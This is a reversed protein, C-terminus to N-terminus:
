FEGDYTTSQTPIHCKGPQPGTFSGCTGNQLPSNNENLKETATQQGTASTASTATESPTDSVYRNLADAFDAVWYCSGFRDRRPIVGYPKLLTTIRRSTIPKGSWWEAWPADELACLAECLEQSGIRSSKQAEIVESIDRLLLVGPSQPEDDNQKALGVLASRVSEPWGKGALDAIACIARANDQARDNLANPVAPDLGRLRMLNDDAWRQARRRLPVFEALKDARFREVKEGAQKRRLPVVLARDELTDPLKGIMAICKPAWVKFQKPEHDDGVSRWVYASLRNHGGNVIGRLEENDTLYTDGEDILVTPCYKEIVRFLVSTTINVNHMPKPALVGITSLATTKGCRKEPSVFALIPSIDAADHTWAHLVWTAMLVDSHEPLVCHRQIVDRIDSLLAAGDVGDPWPEVNEFPDPLDSETEKPRKANVMKDLATVRIGLEKAEAERCKEYRLESLQSLETIKVEEPSLSSPPPGMGVDRRHAEDRTAIEAFSNM